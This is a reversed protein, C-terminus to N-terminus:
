LFCSDPIKLSQSMSNSNPTSIHVSEGEDDLNPQSVSCTSISCSALVSKTETDAPQNLQLGSAFAHLLGYDYVGGNDVVGHDPDDM